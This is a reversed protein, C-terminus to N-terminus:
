LGGTKELEIAALDLCGGCPGEDWPVGHQCADHVVRYESGKYAEQNLAHQVGKRLGFAIEVARIAVADLDIVAPGGLIGTKVFANVTPGTILGVFIRSAASLHATTTPTQEM